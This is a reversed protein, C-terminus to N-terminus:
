KALVHAKIKSATNSAEPLTVWLRPFLLYRLKAEVLILNELNRRKSFADFIAELLAELVFSAGLASPLAEPSRHQSWNPEM